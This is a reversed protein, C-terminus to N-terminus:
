SLYGREKGWQVWDKAMEHVKGRHEPNVSNEGTIARLAAFWFDPERQLESLLLPVANGGMGIIQQYAPHAAMETNSSLFYTDKKWQAALADFRTRLAEEELPQSLLVSIEIDAGEPLEPAIFEVRHGSQVTTKITLAAPM